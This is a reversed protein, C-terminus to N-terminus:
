SETCLASPILLWRQFISCSRSVKEEQLSWLVGADLLHARIPQERQLSLCCCVHHTHKGRARWRQEVPVTPTPTLNVRCAAAWRCCPCVCSCGSPHCVSVPTLVIPPQQILQLSLLGFQVYLANLSVLSSQPKRPTDGTPMTSSVLYVCVLWHVPRSPPKKPLACMLRM